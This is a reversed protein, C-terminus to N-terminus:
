FVWMQLAEVKGRLNQNRGVLKEMAALTSSITNSTEMMNVKCLYCESWLVQLIFYLWCDMAM